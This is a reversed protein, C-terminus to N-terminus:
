KESGPPRRSKEREIQRITTELLEQQEDHIQRRVVAMDLIAILVALGLLVVCIMWFLVFYAPNARLKDRLFTEGTVVMVIAAVLFIAGIVRRRIDQKRGV